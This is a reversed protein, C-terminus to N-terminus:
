LHNRTIFDTNISLKFIDKLINISFKLYLASHQINYDGDLNFNILKTFHFRVSLYMEIKFRSYFSTDISYLNELHFYILLYKSNNKNWDLLELPGLLLFYNSLFKISTYKYLRKICCYSEFTCKSPEQSQYGWTVGSSLAPWSSWCKFM